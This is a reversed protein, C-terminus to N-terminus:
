HFRVEPLESNAELSVVSITIEWNLADKDIYLFTVIQHRDTGQHKTPFTGVADPEISVLYFSGILRQPGWFDQVYVGIVLSPLGLDGANWKPM